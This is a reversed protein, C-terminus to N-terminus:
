LTLELSLNLRNNINGQIRDNGSGIEKVGDFYTEAYKGSIEIYNLPKYKILLYWRTGKGYLAVNSFLGSIDNEYEYVRSDYSDTNFMVFRTDVSLNKFAIFKLDTFFLYGKNSGGFNKYNVNVYEYRSKLRMKDSFDYIFEIRSNLQNRNDVKKVDRNFEDKITRLEEKNENKYKLIVKLNKVAKWESYLLFDNGTVPTQEFFSRYPFKFQDFYANVLVNNLPKLTLGAYFGIENQTSGNKEGFGFSHVPSFDEPYNRYSFVAEAYKALDIQLSSIYAVSGSQSRAVEGFLNLNKFVYDYDFSLMNGKRGSFNFLERDDPKINKSFESAWGSAGLRLGSSNYVLRVGGIKEKLSNKRSIESITRHYGDYYFASVENLLTDISADLFNDSYFLIFTFKDYILESAAGRFFQVENVSKYAQLGRDRKKINSVDYNKSFSLSSWMGLGQGFNLIYDGAIFKNIFKYKQIEVFGSVFDTLNNEGPDKELTLGASLDFSKDYYKFNFRNYIKSKSGSYKGSDIFGQKTQLDQIFRGRYQLDFDKFMGKFSKEKGTLGKESLIKEKTETRVVLFPKIKEYILDTIGDIKLLERKSKFLVNEDRYEIIRRAILPNIFPINELESVSVSNLDYPNRYLSQLFELLPSDENEDQINDLITETPDTNFLSDAPAPTENDQAHLYVPQLNIKWIFIVALFILKYVPKSKM